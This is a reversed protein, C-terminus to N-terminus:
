AILVQNGNSSRKEASFGVYTAPQLSIGPLIKTNNRGYLKYSKFYIRFNESRQTKM